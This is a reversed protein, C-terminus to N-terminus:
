RQAGPHWSLEVRLTTGEWGVSGRTRVHIARDSLEPGTVQGQVVYRCMQPSCREGETVVGCGHSRLDLSSPPRSLEDVIAMAKAIQPNRIGNGECSLPFGQPSARIRLTRLRDHSPQLPMERIVTVNEFRPRLVEMLQAQLKDASEKQEVGALVLVFLRHEVTDYNLRATLRERTDLYERYAADEACAVCRAGREAFFKDVQAYVRAGAPERDQLDFRAKYSPPISSTAMVALLALAAVPYKLFDWPWPTRLGYLRVALPLVALATLDTYDITRGIRVPSHANVVEIFPTALPSKWGAFLIALALAVRAIHVGSLAAVLQAFVYLGAFDSLKGTLWGPYQAKLYLDNAVLLALALIFAPQTVVQLDVRNPGM